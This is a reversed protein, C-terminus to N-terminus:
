NKDSKARWRLLAEELIANFMVEDLTARAVDVFLNAVDRAKDSPPRPERPAHPLVVDIAHIHRIHWRRAWSARRYWDPDAREGTEQFRSRADEIQGNIFQLEASLTAKVSLLEERSMRSLDLEGHTKTSITTM